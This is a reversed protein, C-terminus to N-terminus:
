FPAFGSNDMGRVIVLWDSISATDTCSSYALTCNFTELDGGM